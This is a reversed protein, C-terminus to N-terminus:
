PSANYGGEYSVRRPDGSGNAAMRYIQPGGGRGSTFVITEGNATWAPETDIAQSHTLRSLHGSTLDKVYIDPNGPESSLVLALRSGDPSFAPAGNIGPRSTVLTRQGTRLNQIYVEAVENEFSVYAIREGEPGWSPSMLPANSHLIAQQNYGDADAVMLSYRRKGNEKTANIFAIRTRFAGPEGILEEYILDSVHHAGMRPNDAPVPVRYGLVQEGSYVDFVQFEIVSQGGAGPLLRGIVVHNVGLVRWNKLDLEEAQSPTELMDERDLPRFKGSRTLDAAVIQAVDLPAEGQGQWEFPVIAIPRAINASQTIEIELVANAATLPLLCAFAIIFRKLM